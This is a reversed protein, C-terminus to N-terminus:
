FLSPQRQLMPSLVQYFKKRSKVYIVGDFFSYGHGTLMKLWFFGSGDIYGM